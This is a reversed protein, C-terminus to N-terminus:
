AADVAIDRAIRVATILGLIVGTILGTVVFPNRPDAWSLVGANIGLTPTLTFVAFLVAFVFIAILPCLAGLAGGILAGKLYLARRRLGRRRAIVLLWAALTGLLAAAPGTVILSRRLSGKSSEDSGLGDDPLGTISNSCSSRASSLGESGASFPLKSSEAVSPV